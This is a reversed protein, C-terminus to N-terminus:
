YELPQDQYLITTPSEGFHYYKNITPDSIDIDTSDKRSDRYYHGNKGTEKNECYISVAGNKLKKEKCTTGERLIGLLFTRENMVPQPKAVAM